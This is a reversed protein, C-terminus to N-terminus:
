EESEVGSDEDEDDDGTDMPRTEGDDKKKGARSKYPKDIGNEEAQKNIEAGDAKAQKEAAELELYRRITDPMKDSDNEASRTTPIKASLKKRQELLNIYNKVAEDQQTACVDANTTEMTKKLENAQNKLSTRKKELRSDTVNKYADACMEKLELEEPTCDVDEKELTSEIYSAIQRHDMKSSKVIQLKYYFGKYLYFLICIFGLIM